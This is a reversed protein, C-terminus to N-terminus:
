NPSWRPPRRHRKDTTPSGAPPFQRRRLSPGGGLLRPACAYLFLKIALSLPTYVGWVLPVMVYLWFVAIMVKNTPHVPEVTSM